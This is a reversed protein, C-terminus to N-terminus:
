SLKAKMWRKRMTAKRPRSLGTGGHWLDLARNRSQASPQILLIDNICLPSYSVCIVYPARGQERRVVVGETAKPPGPEDDCFEDAEVRVRCVEGKDIYMRSSVPTDLLETATTLPSDPIWFYARENPDSSPSTMYSFIVCQDHIFRVYLATPQPLYQVPIYMDDFFGVSVLIFVILETLGFAIRPRKRRIGDEDSSKVKAVIVESSFPRFVVLRFVVLDLLNPIHEIMVSYLHVVYRQVM